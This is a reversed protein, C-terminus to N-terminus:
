AARSRGQVAPAEDEQEASVQFHRILGDLMGSNNCILKVAATTEEAMAANEQVAGDVDHIVRNIQQIEDAQKQVSGSIVDVVHDITGVERIIQQLATSTKGVLDVSEGIHTTSESILQRVSKSAEAARGALARVEQAVIAFGAGAQGARAAEVGANLALINTQFAINDITAVVEVIQKASRELSSMSAITNEVVERSGDAIARASRVSGAARATGESSNQLDEALRATASATENLGQAQRDTRLSLAEAAAAVSRSEANISDSSAIIAGIISELSAMTENFNVRIEDSAGVFQTDLRFTLDGAALATMGAGVQSVVFAQQDAHRRTIEAEVQHRDRERAQIDHRMDVIERMLQAFEGLGAIRIDGESQGTGVSRVMLRARSLAQLISRSLLFAILASIFVTPALTLIILDHGQSAIETLDLKKQFVVMAMGDAANDLATTAGALDHSAFGRVAKQADARVGPDAVQPLASMINTAVSNPADPAPAQGLSHAALQASRLTDLAAAENEDFQAHLANFQSYKHAGYLGSGLALSLIAFCCIGLQMPVPIRNVMRDARPAALMREVIPVRRVVHNFLVAAIHVALLGILGYALWKHWGEMIVGQDNGVQLLVPLKLLHFLTVDDGRAWATVMGLVPQAVLALMVLGHVLHSAASQWGPLSKESRPGRVVFFLAFRVLILLLVATGCQRHLDLVTKGFELSKLNHLVLVLAFQAAVLLAMSWHIIRLIRPFRRMEEINTGSTM